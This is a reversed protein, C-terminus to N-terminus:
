DEEELGQNLVASLCASSELFAPTGSIEASAIVHQLNPARTLIQDLDSSFRLKQAASNRNIKKFDFM